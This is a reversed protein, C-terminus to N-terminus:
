LDYFAAATDHWLKQKDNESLERTLEQLANGWQEYTGALYLVPADSGFMVRDSGFVELVREVYPRLAATTWHEIDAETVMGSLKCSVNPLKALDGIQASWPEFVGQKINPKGAHDLVFNVDPCQEVLQIADPLQAHRVCIDFSLGYEALLRVGDIFAPQVAFGIPEDQILRRVGKVLRKSKLADLYSRVPNGQELPAFAVIGRVRSDQDALSTVWDVEDLGQEPACDAQVFVIGEVTWGNVHSPVHETLFAHNLKPLDNLWAYRLQNPDWFHVHSDIIQM